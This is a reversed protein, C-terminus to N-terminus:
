SFPSAERSSQIDDSNRQGDLFATYIMLKFFFFSTQKRSPFVLSRLTLVLTPSSSERDRVGPSQESPTVTGPEGLDCEPSVPDLASAEVAETEQHKRAVNRGQTERTGGRGPQGQSLVYHLRQKTVALCACCARSWSNRM